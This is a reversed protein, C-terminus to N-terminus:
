ASVALAVCRARLWNLSVPVSGAGWARLIRRGYVSMAWLRAADIPPLTPCEDEAWQHLALAAGAYGGDTRTVDSFYEALREQQDQYYAWMTPKNRSAANTAKSALEQQILEYTEVPGGPEIGDTFRAESM